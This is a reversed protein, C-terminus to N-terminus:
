AGSTNIQPCHGRQRANTLFFLSTPAPWARSERAHGAGVSNILITM